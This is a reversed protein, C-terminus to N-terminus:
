IYDNQVDDILDCYGALIQSFEIQREHYFMFSHLALELGVLMEAEVGLSAGLV